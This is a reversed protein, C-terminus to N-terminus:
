HGSSVAPWARLDVALGAACGDDGAVCMFVSLAVRPRHRVLAVLMPNEAVGGGAGGRGHDMACGWCLALAETTGEAKASGALTIKHHDSTWM